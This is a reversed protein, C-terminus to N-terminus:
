DSIKMYISQIEEHFFGRSLLFRQLKAKEKWDVPLPLGFKKEAADRALRCWDIDCEALTASITAKEVGKLGLEARIRQVGYGKRSRSHVYRLAYRRDNIWDNQRCYEVAREIEDQMQARSLEDDDEPASKDAASFLYAALKRRIEAESYDRVSLVKMAYNLPKNM